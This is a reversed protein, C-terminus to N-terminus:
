HVLCMLWWHISQLIFLLKLHHLIKLEMHKFCLTSHSMQFLISIKSARRSDQRIEFSLMTYNRISDFHRIQSGLDNPTQTRQCLVCWPQNLRSPKVLFNLATKSVCLRRETPQQIGMISLHKFQIFFCQDKSPHCGAITTIKQSISKLHKKIGM